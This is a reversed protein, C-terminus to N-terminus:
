LPTEENLFASVPLRITLVESLAGAKFTVDVFVQGPKLADSSFEVTDMTVRPAWQQIRAMVQRAADSRVLEDTPDFLARQFDAGYDPRMIRETHNTVLVDLLQGEVVRAYQNTTAVHGDVDIRFPLSLSKM